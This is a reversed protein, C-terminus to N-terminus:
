GYVAEGKPMPQQLEYPTAIEVERGSESSRQFATLVELVHLTLAVGARAKKGDKMAQAMDALGLGRSNDSYAEFPTDIAVFNGNGFVEKANPSNTEGLKVQIEGGFGNPDPVILNGLSGYIEINNVGPMGYADFTTFLTGTAGNAFRLLCTYHTPVDVDIVTGNLPESTIMRTAYSIKTMGMVSKVPGLLQVLATVYYPGMDMMPGGGHKYYFEPDPHWTEHGHCIMHAAFGVPDGILGEEIFSRCGQIGAGMFTDPAGGLYLGKEKALAALELGEELTVALPKECYVPKGALLAAKTVDYHEYPRTLNLVIDVEPDAFLEHMDEYLKPINYEAVAKEAKARVLDCVGIVELNKFRRTINKLYIGSINGVGVFAIKTKM